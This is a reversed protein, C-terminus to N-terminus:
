SKNLLHLGRELIETELTNLMDRLTRLFMDEDPGFAATFNKINDIVDVRADDLQESTWESIDPDFKM